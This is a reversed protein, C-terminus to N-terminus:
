SQFANCISRREICRCNWSGKSSSWSGKEGVFKSTHAIRVPEAPKEKSKGDKGKEPPPAPTVPKKKDKAM